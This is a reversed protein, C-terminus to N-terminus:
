RMLLIDPSIISCMPFDTMNQPLPVSEYWGIQEVPKSAAYKTGIHKMKSEAHM